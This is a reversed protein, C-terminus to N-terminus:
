VAAPQPQPIPVQLVSGEGPTFLEIERGDPDFLTISSGVSAHDIETDIGKAALDVRWAELAELTPVHMAIHDLHQAPSSSPDLPEGTPRFLLIFNGQPHFLGTFGDGKRREFGLVGQYWRASTSWDQVRLVMHAIGVMEADAM